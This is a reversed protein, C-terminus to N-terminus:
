IARFHLQLVIIELFIAENSFIGIKTKSQKRTAKSKM